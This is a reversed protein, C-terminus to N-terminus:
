ALHNLYLLNKNKIHTLNEVSDTLKKTGTLAQIANSYKRKGTSKFTGASKLVIPSLVTM